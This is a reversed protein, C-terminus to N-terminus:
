NWDCHVDPDITVWKQELMLEFSLKLLQDYPGNALTPPGSIVPRCPGGQQNILNKRFPHEKIGSSAFGTGPKSVPEIATIRFPVDCEWQLQERDEVMLLCVSEPSDIIASGHLTLEGGDWYMPLWHNTKDDFVIFADARSAHRATALTAVQARDNRDFERPCVILRVVKTRNPVDPYKKNLNAARSFRTGAAKPIAGHQTSM